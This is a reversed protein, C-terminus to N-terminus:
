CSRGSGFRSRRFLFSKAPSLLCPSLLVRWYWQLCPLFLKSTQRGLLPGFWGNRGYLVIMLGAVVPSVAFPVDLLSILLISRSISETRDGLSCVTWVSYLPVVILAILVTLKAAHFFAPEKLNQLLVSEEKFAQMFVNLAPIFLILSLYAIVVAILTVSGAMSVLQHPHSPIQVQIFLSGRCM